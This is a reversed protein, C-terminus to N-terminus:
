ANNSVPDTVFTGVFLPALLSSINGVTNSLGMLIGVYNPSLDAHNSYVGNYITSNTVIIATLLIMVSFLDTTRTIGLIAFSIAM